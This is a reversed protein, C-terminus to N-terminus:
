RLSSLASDVARGVTFPLGGTVLSAGAARKGSPLEILVTVVTEGDVDRTNVTVNTPPPFGRLLAVATAVANTLGDPGPGVAVGAERGEEDIARVEVADASEEIALKAFRPDGSVPGTSDSDVVAVMHSPDPAAFADPLTEDLGRGLGSRRTPVGSGTRGFDVALREVARQIEADPRTGDTWVRVIPPGDSSERVEVDAVGPLSRVARRLEEVIM